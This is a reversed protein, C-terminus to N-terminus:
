AKGAGSVLESCLAQTTPPAQLQAIVDLVSSYTGVVLFIFGMLILTLAKLKHRSFIDGPVLRHFLLGPGIFCVFSGTTAGILEFILNIQPLAIAVCLSSTVAAVAIGTRMGPVDLHPSHYFLATELSFRIPFINLPYAMTVAFAMAAMGSCVVWDRSCLLPQLNGLVNGLTQEGFALFGTVGMLLYVFCCLLMARVSVKQMRKYSKAELETYISPVNPQCCFAFISTSLMKFCGTIGGKPQLADFGTLTPSIRQSAFVYGVVFILYLICSVGAFSAFRLDNIRDLLSLPLLVLLTTLILVTNPDMLSSLAPDALHGFAADLVQQSIQGVTIMYAVATGFCFLVINVELLLAFCPGFAAKAIEEYSNKGSLEVLQVIVRISLVSLAALLLMLLPGWLIGSYYMARPLALAGAGLAAASINVVSSRMSGPRLFSKRGGKTPSEAPPSILAEATTHREPEEDLRVDESTWTLIPMLDPVYGGQVLRDQALRQLYSARVAQHLPVQLLPAQLMPRKVRTKEEQLTSMAPASPAHHFSSM